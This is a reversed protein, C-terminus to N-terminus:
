GKSKKFYERASREGAAGHAGIKQDFGRRGWQDVGSGTIQSPGITLFPLGM